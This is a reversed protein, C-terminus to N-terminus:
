GGVLSLTAYLVLHRGLIVEVWDSIILMFNTSSFIVDNTECAELTFNTNEEIIFKHLVQFKTLTSDKRQGGFVSKWRVHM